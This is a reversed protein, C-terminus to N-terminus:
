QKRGKEEEAKIQEEKEVTMLNPQQVPSRELKTIYTNVEIFKRRSLSRGKVKPVKYHNLFRCFIVKSDYFTPDNIGHIM